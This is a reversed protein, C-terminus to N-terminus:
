RRARDDKERHENVRLRYVAVFLVVVGLCILLVGLVSQDAVSLAGIIVLVPGLVVLRAGVRVQTASLRKGVEVAYPELPIRRPVASDIPM